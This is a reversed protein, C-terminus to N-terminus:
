KCLRNMFSHKLNRFWDYLIYLKPNIAFLKYQLKVGSSGNEGLTQRAGDLMRKKVNYEKDTKVDVNFYHYICFDCFIMVVFPIVEKLENTVVFNMRDSLADMGEEIVKVRNNSNMTSGNRLIYCYLPIDIYAIRKCQFVLKHYVFEDECLRAVPYEVKEFLERKYLKNWAVVDVLHPNSLAETPTIIKTNAEALKSDIVSECSYFDKENRVYNCAAIDANYKVLQAYLIEYMHHSVFDDSDVFALLEGTSNHIGYNRADSLGGNKKHLVRIREDIQSYEDCIVGSKDTSGDDVLIIEIERYTQNILSEICKAVYGEVNYVPVIISIRKADSM